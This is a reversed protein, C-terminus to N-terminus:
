RRKATM